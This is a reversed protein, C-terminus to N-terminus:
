GVEEGVAAGSITARNVLLCHWGQGTRAWHVVERSLARFTPKGRSFKAVQLGADAGLLVRGVPLGM